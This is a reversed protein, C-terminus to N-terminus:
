TLPLMNFKVNTINSSTDIKKIKSSYIIYHLMKTLHKISTM